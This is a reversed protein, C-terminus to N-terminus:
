DGFDNRAYVDTRLFFRLPQRFHSRKNREPLKRMPKTPSNSPVEPVKVPLTNLNGCTNTELHQLKNFDVKERENEGAM